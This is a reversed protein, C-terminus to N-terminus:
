PDFQARAPTDITNTAISNANNVDTKANLQAAVAQAAQHRADMNEVLLRV